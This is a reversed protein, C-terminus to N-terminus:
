RSLPVCLPGGPVLDARIVERAAEERVAERPIPVTERPIAVERVTQVPSCMPATVGTRHGQVAKATQAQRATQAM